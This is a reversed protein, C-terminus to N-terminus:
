SCLVVKTNPRVARLLLSDRFAELKFALDTATCVIVNFAKLSAVDLIVCETDTNSEGDAKM